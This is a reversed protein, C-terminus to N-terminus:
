PAPRSGRSSRRAGRAERRRGLSRRSVDSRTRPHSSSSRRARGSSTGCPCTRPRPSRRGAPSSTRRTGPTRACSPWRARRSTSSRRRPAPRMCDRTSSRGSSRRRRRPRPSRRRSPKCAAPGTGPSRRRPSSTPGSSRRPACGSSRRSSRAHRRISSRRSPSSRSSSGSGSVPRFRCRACRAGNPTRSSRAFSRTSRRPRRGTACGAARRGDPGGRAGAAAGRDPVDAWTSLADDPAYGATVRHLQGASSTPTAISGGSAGITALGLRVAVDIVDQPTAAASLHATVRQLAETRETAM